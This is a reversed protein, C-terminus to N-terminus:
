APPNWGPSAGLIPEGRGSLTRLMGHEVALDAGTRLHMAAEQPRGPALALAMLLRVDVVQRPTAPRHERVMSIVEAETVADGMGAVRVAAFPDRPGQLRGLAAIARRREGSEVAVELAARDVQALMEDDASRSVLFRRVQQLHDEASSRDGSAALIRAVLLEGVAEFAVHGAAAGQEVLARAVRAAAQLDGLDLLSLALAVQADCDDVVTLRGIGDLSALAQEALFRARL